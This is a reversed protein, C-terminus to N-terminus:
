DMKVSSLSFNCTFNCVELSMEQSLQQGREFNTVLTGHVFQFNVVHYLFSLCSLFVLLTIYVHGLKNVRLTYYARILAVWRGSTEWRSHHYCVKNRCQIKKSGRCSWCHSLLFAESWLIFNWFKLNNFLNLVLKKKIPCSPPFQHM